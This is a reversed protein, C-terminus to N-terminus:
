SFTSMSLWHLPNQSWLDKGKWEWHEASGPCETTAPSPLPSLVEQDGTYFGSSSCFTSRPSCVLSPFSFLQVSKFGQIDDCTHM